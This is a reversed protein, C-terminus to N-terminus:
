DEIMVKAQDVGSKALSVGARLKALDENQDLKDEFNETSQMLRAVALDNQAKDNDKKRENEMARLDVERSKLKLLPDNDFQSTIKKEEKMFEETMEAILISKRAEIQNTMMQLQQQVMPNMAAQQQMLMMERLQERFELQVQEQAMLSIHELINKQIAAMIAPNNRVMNTSTHKSVKSKTELTLKKLVEKIFM